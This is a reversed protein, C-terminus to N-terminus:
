VRFPLTGTAIRASVCLLWLLFPYVILREFVGKSSSNFEAGYAFSSVIMLLSVLVSFARLAGSWADMTRGLVLTALAGAAFTLVSGATHVTWNVNEPCAGLVICGVASLGLLAVGTRRACVVSLARSREVSIALGSDDWCSADNHFAWACLCLGMSGLAGFVIAGVNFVLHLPSLDTRGLDSIRNSTMSYAPYATSAVVNDVVFQLTAM